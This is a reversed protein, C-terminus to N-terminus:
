AVLEKDGTRTGIIEALRDYAFQGAEVQREAAALLHPRLLDATAWIEHLAAELAAEFDQASLSIMRCGEGFHDILGAFKLRYYESGEIAVVPIGQSLAFVAAHYSATVVARCRSIQAIIDRLSGPADLQCHDDVIQSILKDIVRADSASEVSDSICVPLAILDARMGAVFARLADRLKRLDTETTGAYPAVRLNVGLAEGPSDSRSSWSMEVSDDGTVIIRQPSVGLQGLIAVSEPRERLGILTAKPLLEAAADLLAQNRLPGFGHGVIAFPIGMASAARMRELAAWAQGPFVDTFYGGGTLLLFDTEALVAQNVLRAAKLRLAKEFTAPFFRRLLPDADPFTRRLALYGSRVWRWGGRNEVPINVAGPVIENLSESHRSVISFRASPLREHLRDVAARIMSQDGLNDLEYSGTQVLIRPHDRQTM